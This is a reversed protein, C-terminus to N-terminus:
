VSKVHPRQVLVSVEDSHPPILQKMATEQHTIPGMGGVKLVRTLSSLLAIALLAASVDAM